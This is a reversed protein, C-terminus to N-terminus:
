VPPRDIMPTPSTDPTLASPLPSNTQPAQSQFGAALRTVFGEVLIEFVMDAQALGYHPRAAPANDIKVILPRRDTAGVKAPKGSLPWCDKTCPAAPDITPEPTPVPTAVPASRAAATPEPAATGLALPVDSTSTHACGTVLLITATLAVVWRPGSRVHHM